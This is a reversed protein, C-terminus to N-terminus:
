MESGEGSGAKADRSEQEKREFAAREMHKQAQEAFEVGRKAQGDDLAQAAQKLLRAAEKLDDINAKPLASHPQTGRAALDLARESMARQRETREAKGAENMKKPDSQARELARKAEDMATKLAKEARNLTAESVFGFGDLLRSKARQLSREADRAREIGEKLGGGELAELAAEGQSRASAADNSANDSGRGVAPLDSLAQTLEDLAADLEGSGQFDKRVADEAE